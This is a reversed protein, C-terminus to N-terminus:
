KQQKIRKIWIWEDMFTPSKSFIEIFNISLIIIAVWFWYYWLNYFIYGRYNFFLIFSLVDVVVLLYFFFIPYFLLFRLAAQWWLPKGWWSNVVGIWMIVYWLTTKKEWLILAVNIIAWVITCTIILDLILACVRHRWKLQWTIGKKKDICESSKKEQENSFSDM